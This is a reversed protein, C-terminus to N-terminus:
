GSPYRGRCHVQVLRNGVEGSVDDGAVVGLSVPDVEVVAGVRYPTYGPCVGGGKVVEIVNFRFVTVGCSVGCVLHSFLANWDGTQYVADAGDVPPAGIFPVAGGHDAGVSFVETKLGGAAVDGRLFVRFIADVAEEFLAFEQQPLHMVADLVVQVEDVGKQGQLCGLRRL